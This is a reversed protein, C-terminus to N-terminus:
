LLSLDIKAKGTKKYATIGVDWSGPGIIDFYNEVRGNHAAKSWLKSSNHKFVFVDFDRGTAGSVKIRLFSYNPTTITSWATKNHKIKRTTKKRATFLPTELDYKMAKLQRSNPEQASSLQWNHIGNLVVFDEAFLEPLLHEWDSGDCTFTGSTNSAGIREFFWDRTGDSDVYCGGGRGYQHLQELNAIQNDMHHGYEHVLSHIWDTDDAAFWLEGHGPVTNSPQYCALAQKDGCITAIEALTKVHIVVNSIEAGHFTSNLVNAAATLDFAPVTSDITIVRGSADAFAARAVARATSAVHAGAPLLADKVEKKASVKSLDIKGAPQLESAAASSSILAAAAVAVASITL